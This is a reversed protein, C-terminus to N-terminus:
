RAPVTIRSPEPLVVARAPVDDVVIAGAGIVAEEGITLTRGQPCMVIAHAGIVVGRGLRVGTTAADRKDNNSAITVYQYIQVWDGIVTSGHVVVGLGRHALNVHGELVVEPELLSGFLLFLLTKCFRAPWRLGRRHFSMSMRWLALAIM